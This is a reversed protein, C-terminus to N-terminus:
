QRVRRIAAELATVIKTGRRQFGLERTLQSVIEENTPLTGDSLVWRVMDQLESSSYDGINMRPGVPPRAGRVRPTRTPLAPQVIPQRIVAPLAARDSDRVAEEFAKLVRQVEEERRLFWDTSWIRLFRWGLAELQQQRLRDRDRATPASHYSAGDCEIALVFRGEQNPHMAVMDIRYRSSGVQGVLKLGRRTLEDFISQEFPNLPVETATGREFRQGGSAAYELFGRLLRVGVKPYDAQVDDHSFSSVVTMRQRARTIAVNLRREGGEQLLPGFRYVLQGADNKGYGTSLIIADREDGQVRELNKVFFRERQEAAFLPELGPDQQRARDLAMEIRHAHEIGMTIVGLSEDPRTQVHQCVLDVVRQVEASVSAEQAGVGPIHPVLEHRVAGTGGPGPFTVLRGGYIRHNSYAILAEDRSRYHWDLSWAPELFSSMVDLISQFGATASDEDSEEGPDGAAFFTTPPLQKQDGAIVAQRGRLLSTIADEPLVQSAEDFIVVDFLPTEGPILQSVSLPSAMWCPRLALLVDPAESFLRRLPLHRTRKVAERSVLTSQRPHKNRIELAKLAHARQVRQVALELRKRDLERFEAAIEDHRRGSFGAADPDQLQIEELCSSLCAYRLMDAWLTADPRNAAIEQLVPGLGQEKFATVIGHLKVIQSPTTADSALSRLWSSVDALKMENVSRGHFVAVLPEFDALMATWAATAEALRSQKAPHSTPDVAVKRWDELQAQSRNVLELCESPSLRGVLCHERATRLAARFGGDFMRALAARLTSRAPALTIALYPLDQRYLDERVTEFTQDISSLVDLLLMTRGITEPAKAPCEALLAACVTEWTRWREAALRRAREVSSRVQESSTLVAGLWSSPSDGTFLDSLAAMERMQECATDLMRDDVTALATKALRCECVAGEPLALLRGYLTYLTLGWPPRPAHLARVHANLRDRREVFKRHLAGDDPAPAERVRLLSEQFQEAIHRRSLEAGHCDLCLHALDAERLRNLVVDLAARKEAVFLVTKGRAVLEAILNSITQSKGTGPPGSIVGNQGRLTAVIAQQQSSDADRILFEEDPAHRDFENPDASVRDGCAIQEAGPDRAIASVIDHAALATLLDNLDRVIAMKQFAFNGIVCRPTITFGPIRAAKKQVADFVPQLDFAEGEDDGLVETLLSEADLTVGHEERLAHILVDNLKVDGTRRLSWPGTRGGTQVAEIPVLLVPSSPNKGGDAATWTAMGMAMFLTDLGREEFNSRARNSIETLAATAQTRRAFDVLDTLRVGDSGTRGSQLLAQMSEADTDSLDLTGVKLQRHYLLNNRRSMDVLQRIWTRRAADVKALREASVPQPAPPM